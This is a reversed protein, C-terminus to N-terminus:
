NLIEQPRQELTPNKGRGIIELIHKTTRHLWRELSSVNEKQGIVVIWNSYALYHHKFNLVFINRYYMPDQFNMFLGISLNTKRTRKTM